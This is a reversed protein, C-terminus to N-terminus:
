FLDSLDTLTFSDDPDADAEALEPEEIVPAPAM